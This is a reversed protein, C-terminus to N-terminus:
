AYRYRSLAGKTWKVFGISSAVDRAYTLLSVRLLGDSRTRGSSTAWRIQWNAVDDAALPHDGAGITPKARKGAIALDVGVSM